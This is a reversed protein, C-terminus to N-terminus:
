CGKNRAGKMQDAVKHVDYASGGVTAIAAVDFQEM